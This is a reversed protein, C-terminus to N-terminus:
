SVVGDIYSEDFKKNNKIREKQILIESSSLDETEKYIDGHVCNWSRRIVSKMLLDM